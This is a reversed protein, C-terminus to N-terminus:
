LEQRAAAQLVTTLRIAGVLQRQADLVPLDEIDHELMRDVVNDLEEDPRASAFHLDMLDQVAGGAIQDMIQRRTHRRRHEALLLHAIKRQSIHGLITRGDAVYVDRVGAGELMREVVEDLSAERHVTVARGPHQTMWQAVTM